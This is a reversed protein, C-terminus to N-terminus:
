HLAAFGQKLVASDRGGDQMEDWEERGMVVDRDSCAHLTSSFPNGGGEGVTCTAEWLGKLFSRLKREGPPRNLFRDPDEFEEFPESPGGGRGGTAERLALPTLLRRRVSHAVCQAASSSSCNVFSGVSVEWAM